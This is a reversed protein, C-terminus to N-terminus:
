HTEFGETFAGYVGAVLERAERARGRGGWLRGLSLAARLELSRAQQRRAVELALRLSAEADQATAADHWLLEGKVRHIEPEWYSGKATQDALLQAEALADLGEGFRGAGGCAEALMTLYFTRPLSGDRHKLEALERRMETVGREGQGQMTWTW